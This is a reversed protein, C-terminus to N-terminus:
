SPFRRKTSALGTRKSEFLDKPAPAVNLGTSLIGQNPGSLCGPCPCYRLLHHPFSGVRVETHHIQEMEAARHRRLVGHVDQAEAVILFVAAVFYHPGDHVKPVHLELLLLPLLLCLSIASFTLSARHELGAWAPIIGWLERVGPRPPDTVRVGFVLATKPGAPPAGLAQGQASINPVTERCLPKVQMLNTETADCPTVAWSPNM